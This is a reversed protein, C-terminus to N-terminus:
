LVMPPPAPERKMAPPPEWGWLQLWRRLAQGDPGTGLGTDRGLQILRNGAQQEPHETLADAVIPRSSGFGSYSNCDDEPLLRSTWAIYVGTGERSARFGAAVFVLPRMDGALGNLHAPPIGLADITRWWAASANLQRCASLLPRAILVPITDSM